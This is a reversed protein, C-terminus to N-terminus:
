QSVEIPPLGMRNASRARSYELTRAVERSLVPNYFRSLLHLMTDICLTVGGGTIIRGNDVYCTTVAKVRPYCNTLVALPSEEPAVVESKTTATLGDLLGAAGLIMAGTCISCIVSEVIARRIFKLTSDDRAADVWGPSGPVILVDFKPRDM